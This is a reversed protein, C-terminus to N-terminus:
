LLPQTRHPEPGRRLARADARITRAHPAHPWRLRFPRRLRAIGQHLAPSALLQRHLRPHDGCPRRVALQVDRRGHRRRSLHQDRCQRARGPQHRPLRPRRLPRQRLRLLLLGGTGSAVGGAEAAKPLTFAEYYPGSQTPSDSAGFEHNGPVPWLVHNRLVKAFPEFLGRTTEDDTADPYANDGLMLVIDAMREGNEYAWALYENMVAAAEVCGDPVQSCAGSDGIVWVRVPETSGTPPSTKFFHDADNGAFTTDANGIAYFYKTGSELGTILVEHETAVGENEITTDLNGVERGYSLKTETVRDTRWRVIMSSPTGM